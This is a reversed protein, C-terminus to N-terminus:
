LEPNTSEHVLLELRVVDGALTESRRFVTVGSRCISSVAAFDGDCLDRM